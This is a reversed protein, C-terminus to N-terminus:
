YMGGVPLNLFAWEVAMAYVYAASVYIIVRPISLVDLSKSTKRM